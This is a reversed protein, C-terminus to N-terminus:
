PRFGSLGFDSARERVRRVVDGGGVSGIVAVRSRGGEPVERSRFGCGRIGTEAYSM